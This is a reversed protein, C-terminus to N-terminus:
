SRDLKRWFVVMNRLTYRFFSEIDQQNYKFMIESVKEATDKFSKYEYDLMRRRKLDGFLNEIFSFEPTSAPSLLLLVGKVNKM